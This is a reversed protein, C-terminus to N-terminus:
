AISPEEIRKKKKIERTIKRKIQGKELLKMIRRRAHPSPKPMVIRMLIATVM